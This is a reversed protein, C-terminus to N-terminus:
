KCNPFEKNILEPTANNIVTSDAYGCSKMSISGAVNIEVIKPQPDACAALMTIGSGVGILGKCRALIAVTRPWSMGRADMTGPIIGENKGAISMCYYGKRRLLRVLKAFTNMSWPVPHSYSNYEFAIVNRDAVIKTAAKQDHKSVPAHLKGGGLIKEPPRIEANHYYQHVLKEYSWKHSPWVEGFPFISPCLTHDIGKLRIIRNGLKIRDQPSLNAPIPFIKDFDQNNQHVPAYKDGVLFAIKCDPFKLKYHRAIPTIHLTDGLNRTQKILITPGDKQNKLWQVAEEIVKKAKDIM